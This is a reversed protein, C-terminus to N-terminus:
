FQLTRSNYAKSPAVGLVNKFSNSLHAQDFFGNEISIETLNKNEELYQHIAKRLNNWVLYKKLSVGIQEKFLHSIRSESLFVKSTLSKILTAYEIDDNEIISLCQKIRKDIPVKLNNERAFDTVEKNIILRDSFEKKLFYGNTLTINLKKLFETLTPNNSEIMLIKSVCHQASIKHKINSDIIAFVLNKSTQQNINIDFTGEIATIIEVVPHSHMETNLGEFEFCYTGNQIDFDYVKM